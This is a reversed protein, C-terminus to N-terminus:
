ILVYPHFKIDLKVIRQFTRRSLGLGNRRSSRKGNQLLSRRVLEINEGTRATRRRGSRLKNLNHCTGEGVFKRYTKIVTEKSPTPINCWYNPWRRLVEQVNAVRAYEICVWVRQEITLHPM